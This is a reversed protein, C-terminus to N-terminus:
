FQGRPLVCTPCILVARCLSHFHFQDEFLLGCFQILIHMRFIFMNISVEQRLLNVYFSSGRLMISLIDMIFYFIEGWVLFRSSCSLYFLYDVSALQLTVFISSNSFLSKLAATMFIYLSIVILVRSVYQFISSILSFYISVWISIESSFIVILLFNVPHAWCCFPSKISSLDTFRFICWYFHDLRFLLSLSFFHVLVLPVVVFYRVSMNRSDWFSLTCYVFFIQLFLPQFSGFKAFSM